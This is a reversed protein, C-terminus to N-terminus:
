GDFEPLADLEDRTVQVTEAHLLAADEDEGLVQLAAERGGDNPGVILYKSWSPHTYKTATVLKLM